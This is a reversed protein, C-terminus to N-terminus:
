ITRNGDNEIINKLKTPLEQPTIVYDFVKTKIKEPIPCNIYAIDSCTYLKALNALYYDRLILSEKVFSMIILANNFRHTINQLDSLYDRVSKTIKFDYLTSDLVSITLDNSASQITPGLSDLLFKSLTYQEEIYETLLVWVLSNYNRFQSKKNEM